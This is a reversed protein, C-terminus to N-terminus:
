SHHWYKSKFYSETRASTATTTESDFLSACLASWMPAIDSFHVLRCAFAHNVMINDRTGVHGASIRSEEQIVVRKLIGFVWVRFKSPYCASADKLLKRLSPNAISSNNDGNDDKSEDSSSGSSPFLVEDEESIAESQM